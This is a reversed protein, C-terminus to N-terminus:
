LNQGVWIMCEERKRSASSLLKSCKVLKVDMPLNPNLLVVDMETFIYQLGSLKENIEQKKVDQNKSM